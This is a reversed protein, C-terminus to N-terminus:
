AFSRERPQLVCSMTSVEVIAQAMAEPRPPSQLHRGVVIATLLAPVPELEEVADLVVARLAARLAAAARHAHGGAAGSQQELARAEVDGVVAALAIALLGLLLLAVTRLL